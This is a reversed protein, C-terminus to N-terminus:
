IAMGSSIAVGSAPYTTLKIMKHRKNANIAPEGAGTHAVAFGKGASPSHTSEFKRLSIKKKKQSRSDRAISEV